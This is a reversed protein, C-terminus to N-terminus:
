EANSTKKIGDNYSPNGTTAISACAEPTVVKSDSLISELTAKEGETRKRGIVPRFGHNLSILFVFPYFFIIKIIVM